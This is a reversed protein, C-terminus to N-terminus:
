ENIVKNKINGRNKMAEAEEDRGLRALLRSQLVNVYSQSGQDFRRDRNAIALSFQDAIKDLNLTNCQGAEVANIFEQFYIVTGARNSLSNIKLWVADDSDNVSKEGRCYALLYKFYFAPPKKGPNVAKARDLYKIAQEPQNLNLYLYAIGENVRASDPHAIVSLFYISARSRWNISRQHTLISFTVPVIVLIVAAATQFKIRPMLVSIVTVVSFYIGFAPLYNRHEFYLELPIFTSEVLHAAYFFVLGFLIMGSKKGISLFAAPIVALSLGLCPLTTVPTLLGTSKIYDDHFLGAPSAGPILLLNGMYDFLVRPETILREYLTFDRGAYGSLFIDPAFILISIIILAPVIVTAALLIRLKKIRTQGTDRHFFFYEVLLLFLPLLIGNQKSFAALPWFIVLSITILSKSPTLRKELNCRGTVYCLLGCLIFLASLQTMRQVVYLVTTLLFPSLLWLGSIWVAVYRARNKDQIIERSLLLWSLRYILLGCLLHIVLNTLKLYYVDGGTLRWNCIFSVISVPRSFGHPVLMFVQEWTIRDRGFNYLHFLNVQDDLVLPGYLGPFYVYVTIILVLFLCSVPLKGSVSAPLSNM